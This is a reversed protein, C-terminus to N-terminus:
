IYILKTKFIVILLKNFKFTNPILMISIDLQITIHLM